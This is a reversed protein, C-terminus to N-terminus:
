QAAGFREPSYGGPEFMRRWWAWVAPRYPWVTLELLDESM